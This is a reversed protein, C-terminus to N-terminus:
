RLHDYFNDDIWIHKALEYSAQVAASLNVKAAQGAKKWPAKRVEVLEAAKAIEPAKWGKGVLDAGFVSVDSTESRDRWPEWLLRQSTRLWSVSIM